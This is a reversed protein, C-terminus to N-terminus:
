RAGVTARWGDVFGDRYFKAFEPNPAMKAVCGVKNALKELIELPGLSHAAMLAAGLVANEVGTIRVPKGFLDAAIQCWIRSNQLGKGGGVLYDCRDDNSLIEYSELLDMLVGEMVARSRHSISNLRATNGYFGERRDTKQRTPGTSFVLGDAGPPVKSALEDMISYDIDAGNAQKIQERLWQYSCGGGLSAGVLAYAGNFFSRTDMGPYRHFKAIVKSIQGATGINILIPSGPAALGSGLMSMQNDGGGHIIPIKKDLGVLDAVKDSILGAKQSTSHIEPFINLPLQFKRILEAHWCNERTNFLGTGFANTQDTAFNKNELLKGRLFDTPLVFHAIRQFLDPAYEKIGVLIAGSYGSSIDTGLEDYARNGMVLKMKQIIAKPSWRQDKWNILPGIPEGDVDYLVAGHMQGSLGIARVTGHGGSLNVTERIVEVTKGWLIELDQEAEEAYSRISVCELKLTALNVLGAKVGSTGLDIGLVYEM